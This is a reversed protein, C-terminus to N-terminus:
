FLHTGKKENAMQPAYGNFLAFFEEAYRFGAISDFGPPNFGSAESFLDPFLRLMAASLHGGVSLGAVSINADPPIAGLGAESDGVELWYYDISLPTTIGATAVYPQTTSPLFGLPLSEHKLEIQLVNEDSSSARLRQVYNFASVIQTIALGLGRIEIIGTDVIDVEWTGLEAGRPVFVYEGTLTSKFLVASFGGTENEVPEAAIRWEHGQEQEFIESALAPPIEADEDLFARRALKDGSDSVMGRFDVYSARALQALTYLDSINM